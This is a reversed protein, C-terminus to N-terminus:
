DPKVEDDDLKADDDDLKVEDDGLRTSELTIMSPNVSNRGDEPIALKFPYAIGGQTPRASTTHTLPVVPEDAVIGPVDGPSLHQGFQRQQEQQDRAQGQDSVTRSYSRSRRSTTRGKTQQQQQSIRDRGAEEEQQKQRSEAGVTARSELTARDHKSGWKSWLTMGWSRKIRKVHALDRQRATMGVLATPPPKEVMPICLEALGQGKVWEMAKEKAREEQLRRKVAAFKKNWEEQRRLWKKVPAEKLVGIEDPRLRLAEVEEPPPLPFVNGHRDVSQRIMHDEFPPLPDGARGVCPQTGNSLAKGGNGDGWFGEDEIEIERGQARALAWAGFQAVSRYM